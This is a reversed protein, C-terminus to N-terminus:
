YTKTDVCLQCIYVLTVMVMVLHLVNRDGWYGEATVRERVGVGSLSQDGKHWYLKTKSTRSVMCITDNTINKLNM